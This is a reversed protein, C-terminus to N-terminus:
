KTNLYKLSLYELLIEQLSLITQHTNVKTNNQINSFYIKDTLVTCAYNYSLLYSMQM